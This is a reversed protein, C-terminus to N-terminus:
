KNPKAAIVMTMTRGELKAPSEVTGIETLAEAFRKMAGYGLNSHAMERGRFRISAKVKNGEGLFEKAHALKTELDHDGINTSLHIEKLEVVRQNRRNEKERKQQEFRFKGYDMIKCVPTTAQPAILVLDLDREAALKLAERTSMIGLQGGESDVVRVEAARIAENIIHEKGAITACRGLNNVGSYEPLYM